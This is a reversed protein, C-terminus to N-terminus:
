TYCYLKLRYNVFPRKSCHILRLRFKNWKFKIYENIVKVYQVHGETCQVHGGTRLLIQIAVVTAKHVLRLLCFLPMQIFYQTKNMDAYNSETGKLCQLNRIKILM